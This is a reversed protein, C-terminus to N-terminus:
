VVRERAKRSRPTAPGPPEWRGLVEHMLTQYGMGREAALEQYRAVLEPAMRLTVVRTKRRRPQIDFTMNEIPFVSFDVDDGHEDWWDREEEASAFAPIETIQARQKGM